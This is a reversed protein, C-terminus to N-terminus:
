LNKYEKLFNSIKNDKYYEEIRDIANIYAKARATTLAILHSSFAYSLDIEKLMNERQRFIDYISNEIQYTLEKIQKREEITRFAEIYNDVFKDLTKIRETGKNMAKIIIGEYEEFLKPKKDKILEM